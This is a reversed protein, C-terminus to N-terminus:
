VRHLAGHLRISQTRRQTQKYNFPSGKICPNTNMAVTACGYWGGPVVVRLVAQPGVPDKGSQDEDYEFRDHNAPMRFDVRHCIRVYLPPRKGRHM